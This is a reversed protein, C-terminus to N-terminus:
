YKKTSCYKFVTHFSFYTEVNGRIRFHCSNVSDVNSSLSWLTSREYLVAMSFIGNRGSVVCGITSLSSLKIHSHLASLWESLSFVEKLRVGFTFSFMACPAVTHLVFQDGQM